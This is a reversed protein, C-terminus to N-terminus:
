KQGAANRYGALWLPLPRENMSVRLRTAASRARQTRVADLYRGAQSSLGMFWSLYANAVHVDDVVPGVELHEVANLVVRLSRIREVPLPADREGRMLAVEDQSTAVLPGHRSASTGRPEANQDARGADLLVASLLDSLGASHELCRAVSACDEVRLHATASYAASRVDQPADFFPALRDVAHRVVQDVDDARRSRDRAGRYRIKLSGAAKDGIASALDWRGPLRRDDMVAMEQERVVLGRFALATGLPSELIASTEGGYVIPWWQGTAGAARAESRTRGDGPAVPFLGFEDVVSGWSGRGRDVVWLGEKTLGIDACRRLAVMMASVGEAERSCGPRTPSTTDTEETAFPELGSGSTFVAAFMRTTAPPVALTEIIRHLGDAWEQLRVSRSPLDIRACGRLETDTASVLMLSEEPWYGLAYVMYALIDEPERAPTEDAATYTGPTIPRNM